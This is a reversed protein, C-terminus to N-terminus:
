SFVGENLALAQEFLRRRGEPTGIRDQNAYLWQVVGAPLYSEALLEAIQAVTPDDPVTVSGLERSTPLRDAM